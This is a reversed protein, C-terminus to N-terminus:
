PAPASLRQLPRIELAHLWFVPVGKARAADVVDVTGGRGQAPKGDWIVILAGAAAVLRDGLEAYPQAGDTYGDAAPAEHVAEARTLL